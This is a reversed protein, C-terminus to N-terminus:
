FPKVVALVVIAILLLTPAETIARYFGESRRNRDNAFDRVWRAFVGHLGTLLVVLLLKAHLWGQSLYAPLAAIIALGFIWSAIMSPTMIGRLLKREMVKFTESAASGQGVMSHYIFLRPLYLMAVMWAIISIVHLAVLWTYNSILWLTITSWM